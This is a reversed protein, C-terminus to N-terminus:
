SSPSSRLWPFKEALKPLFWFFAAVGACFVALVPNTGVWNTLGSVTEAATQWATLGSLDPPAPIAPLSPLAVTGGVAAGGAAVVPKSIEKAESVQQPMYPADPAETPKLFLAAERQRRSVLGKLVRGGGRAWKSFQKAAGLRDGANLKEAAGTVVASVPDPALATDVPAV